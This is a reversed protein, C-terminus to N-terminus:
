RFVKLLRTISLLVLSGDDAPWGLESVLFEVISGVTERM